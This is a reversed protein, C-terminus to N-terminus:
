DRLRRTAAYNPVISSPATGYQKKFARSFHSFDTFGCLLAVDTVHRARGEKLADHSAKLRQQWLWRIVTTGESAFIRCLTRPSVNTESAVQDLDLDPDDLNALMYSKARRLFQARRDAGQDGRGGVEHELAAALVDLISASVRSEVIPEKQLNLVAARQIMDSLLAGMSTSGDLKIATMYEAGSLRSTLSRRPITVLLITYESPFEYSMTSSNDYLVMEGPQQVATRENQTLRAAGRLLLSFMFDDNPASQVRSVGRRYAIPACDIRSIDIKGLNQCRISGYFSQPSDSRVDAACYRALIADHWYELRESPPAATTSFETVM